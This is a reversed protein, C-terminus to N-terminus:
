STCLSDTLVSLVSTDESNYELKNREALLKELYCIRWRDVEPVVLRKKQLHEKIKWAPTSLPDLGTEVKLFHLNKGTNSRIDRSVISSLIAVEKSVSNRLSRYFGTYRSLIDSRVHLLGGSLLNDVLFTHTGRPLDWALKVATNWTNYMQNAMDGGLDWLMSGYHDCCYTKVAKLIELPHAFSFTERIETSRSVFEARKRRTDLDMTGDKHIEHGLHNASDVWPLDVGYLQLPAPLTLKKNRGSMFICKSKSKIPDPDTSFQLNNTMAFRECVALMSEMASRCPAILLIDDAFGVAGMFVDGVFCGAGLNRLEKLLDDMYVAFLAPSLVSGQRTGNLITFQNSRAKGWRVWAYQDQYVVALVRVVIAPVKRQLIKRFLIDYKCMDFAKTCDLLTVIPNTGNRIFSNVVEMVLWSCQTTSTGEKYGFQLSDSSLLHGWVLLVTKDFLKLILSSGAIARYSNTDAPNKLSNKLLPLFACALLCSTVTGHVLWSRFVCALYEFLEDPANLIADSSYGESVDSKGAKMKCAASKVINGNVKLVENISDPNILGSIQANINDMESSSDSSSYLGQYVQRFKDVIEEEGNAGAVNEPLDNSSKGSYVRKMEQMLNSTGTESAEFLRTALNLDALRRSRRVGSHYGNRTKVMLGHLVGSSPREAKRWVDHWFLADKRLPEIEEKWGPLSGSGFKKKADNPKARGSTQPITCHTTEIIACLIDLMFTDRESSHVPDRCHPDDCSLSGPVALACLRDQLQLTYNHINEETAKYWAPQKPIRSSM